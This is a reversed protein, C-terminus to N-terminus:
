ANAKRKPAIGSRMDAAAAQSRWYAASARISEVIPAWSIGHAKMFEDTGTTDFRAAQLFHLSEAATNMLTPMGPIKLLGALLPMPIHRAPPTRGLAVALERLLEALNPTEADLALLRRPASPARVAAAILTALGDVSVLPLWHAPSGPILALRGRALNGILQFLPQAADLEGSASHGSVTAPQVEVLEIRHEGAFARVRLGGELKSAEYAGARAYVRAWDTREPEDPSIGLRHLHAANELMFGTIMVLRVGRRRALEAVALAGDVNTRRATQPDLRWAFQAGLHVVANLEPLAAQIGLGAADLDGAVGALLTGDGGLNDVRGRLERLRDPSRMLALVSTGQATLEAALYRGVFGTTGTILTTAM